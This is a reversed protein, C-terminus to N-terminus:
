RLLSPLANIDRLLVTIKSSIDEPLGQGEEMLAVTHIGCLAGRRLVDASDSVLLMQEDIKGLRISLVAPDDKEIHMMDGGGGQGMTVVQYKEQLGTAVDLVEPELGRESHFVVTTIQM